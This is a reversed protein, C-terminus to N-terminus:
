NALEKALAEFLHNWGMKRIEPGDSGEFFAGQETFILDSGKETPVFEFTIQSASIRKDGLAMTYAAVARRNIEIDQYTAESTCILGKCPGEELSFSKREKGGPRFDMEFGTGPKGNSGAFWRRKKEPDSFAKFVREVPVPYSKEIVFTSHVVSQDEMNM